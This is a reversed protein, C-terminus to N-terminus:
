ARHHGLAVHPRHAHRLRAAAMAVGHGVARADAVTGDRLRAARSTGHALVREVGATAWFRHEDRVRGEDALRQANAEEQRTAIKDKNLMHVTYNNWM